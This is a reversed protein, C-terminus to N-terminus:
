ANVKMQLLENKMREIELDKRLINNENEKVLLEIDKDKLENKHKEDSLELKNKLDEVQKIMDKIHGAYANSLQKYQRDVTKLLSPKIIVLEDYNKYKLGIDLAGFFDCIDSEANSIYQPDIYSYHKLNLNVNKIKGYEKIHESTRRPLDKTYGYKCVLANDPYKEPINMGKRLKKVTNLTFLYVCPVSTSSSGFVEKVAEASVGLIKSVLKDKQEKTGMQATFLTETAWDVFSGANGSSCSFLIKLMGKYTIYMQKKGTDNKFNENENSIFYKYHTNKIYGGDKHTLSNKLNRIEFADLIDNALFYVSKSNRKGRTEIEFTKGEVNRFKEEEDLVLLEPAEQYEYLKDKREKKEDAMMKPINNLVWEETLLLKAKPAPNEQNKSLRWGCRKNTNGYAYYKDDIDKRKIINRVTKSCGYFYKSDYKKLESANFYNINDITISIPKNM